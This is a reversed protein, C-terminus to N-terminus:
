NTTLKLGRDRLSARMSRDPMPRLRVTRLFSSGPAPQRTWTCTSTVSVIWAHMSWLHLRGFIYLHTYETHLINRTRTSFTAYECYSKDRTKGVTKSRCPRGRKAQVRGPPAVNTGYLDTLVHSEGAIKKRVESMRRPKHLDCDRSSVPSARHLLLARQESWQRQTCINNSRLTRTAKLDILGV